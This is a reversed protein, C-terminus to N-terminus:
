KTEGKNTHTEKIDNIKAQLRKLATNRSNEGACVDVAICIESCIIKYPTYNAMHSKYTSLITDRNNKLKNTSSFIHKMTKIFAFICSIIVYVVLILMKVKMPITEIFFAVITLLTGLANIPSILNKFFLKLFLPWSTICEETNSINQM